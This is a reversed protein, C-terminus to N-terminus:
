TSSGARHQPPDDDPDIALGDLNAHLEAVADALCRLGVRIFSIQEYAAHGGQDAQALDAELAHLSDLLQSHHTSYAAEITDVDRLIPGDPRRILRLRQDTPQRRHAAANRARHVDARQTAPGKSVAIVRSNPTPDM